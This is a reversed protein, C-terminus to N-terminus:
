DTDLVTVGPATWTGDHRVVELDVTEGARLDGLDAVAVDLTGISGTRAPGYTFLEDLVITGEARDVSVVTGTV